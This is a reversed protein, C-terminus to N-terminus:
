LDLKPRSPSPAEPSNGVVLLDLRSQMVYMHADLHSVDVNWSLALEIQARCERRADESTIQALAAKSSAPLFGDADRLSVGNTLSRWRYGAYESTLTLHVGIPAGALMDAAERAWPCPAMLTANTALGKALSQHIAVNASHSSGLDDCNVILLRDEPKYGLREGLSAARPDDAGPAAVIGTTVLVPGDRLYAPSATTAFAM